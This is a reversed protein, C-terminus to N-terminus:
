KDTEVMVREGLMKVLEGLDYHELSGPVVLGILNPALPQRVVDDAWSRVSDRLRLTVFRPEIAAAHLAVPAARGVGVLHIAGADVREDASLVDLGALLDEVRQGLLPRGGHMALM